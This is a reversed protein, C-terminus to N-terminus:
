QNNKGPREEEPKKKEAGSPAPTIIPGATKKDEEKTEKEKVEAKPKGEAEVKKEETEPKGGEAKEEGPPAVEQKEEKEEPKEEKKEPEPKEKERIYNMQLDSITSELWKKEDESLNGSTKGRLMILIDIFGKAAELNREAKGTLPNALKGMSQYASASFMSVLSIFRATDMDTQYKEEEAM